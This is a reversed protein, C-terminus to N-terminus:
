EETQRTNRKGYKNFMFQGYIVVHIESLYNKRQHRLGTHYKTRIKKQFARVGILRISSIIISFTTAKLPPEAGPLAKLFVSNYFNQQM